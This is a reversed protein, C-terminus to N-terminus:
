ECAARRRAEEVPCGYFADQEAEVEHRLQDIQDRAMGQMLLWADMEAEEAEQTTVEDRDAAAIGEQVRAIKEQEVALYDTLAAQMLAERTRHTREAMEDYGELLDVPLRLMTDVTQM